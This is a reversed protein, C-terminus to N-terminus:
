HVTKFKFKLLKLINICILWVYSHPIERRNLILLAHCISGQQRSYRAPGLFYHSDLTPSSQAPQVIRWPNGDGLNLRSSLWKERKATREHSPHTIRLHIGRNVWSLTTATATTAPTHTHTKKALDM